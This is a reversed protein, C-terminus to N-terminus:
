LTRSKKDVLSAIIKEVEESGEKGSDYINNMFGSLKQLAEMMKDDDFKHYYKDFLAKMAAQCTNMDKGADGLKTKVALLQMSIEDGPALPLTPVLPSTAAAAVMATALAGRQNANARPRASPSPPMSPTGISTFPVNRDPLANSYGAHAGSVSLTKSGHVVKQRKSTVGHPDRADCANDSTLSLDIQSEEKIQHLPRKRMLPKIPHFKLEMTHNAPPQITWARIRRKTNDGIGSPRYRDPYLPDRPKRGGFNFAGAQLALRKVTWILDFLAEHNFTDFGARSAADAVQLEFGYLEVTGQYLGTVGTDQHEYWCNAGRGCFGYLKWPLCTGPQQLASALRGTDWHAFECTLADFTDVNPCRPGLAWYRCTYRRNRPDPAPM